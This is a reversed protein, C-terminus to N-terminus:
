RSAESAALQREASVSAVSLVPAAAETGLWRGIIETAGELDMGELARIDERSGVECRYTDQIGIRKVKTQLGYEAVVECVLGGLGGVITNEEMTVIRRSTALLDRLRPENLPKIRYLDVIGADVGKQALRDAVRMAQPVMIGTAVLTVNRGTRLLTLGESFDAEPAYMSDFPGKDMYLYTPGPGRYASRVAAAIMSYDSPSWITLGPLTRVLSLIDTMHHTPGDKPYVYGTGMGIVTVPLEMCCIDIKLQEFCRLTVFNSIGFVFVKKGGLALGAAVSMANQEAIGVNFFQDPLEQRFRKFAFAGTDVTLLVVDRDRSAIDFLEEFCADRAETYMRTM